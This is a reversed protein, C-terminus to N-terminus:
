NECDINANIVKDDDMLVYKKYNNLTMCLFISHMHKKYM